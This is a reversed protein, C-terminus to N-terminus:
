LRFPPFEKHAGQLAATATGPAESFSDLDKRIATSQKLASNFLVNQRAKM